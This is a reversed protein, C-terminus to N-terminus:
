VALSVTSSPLPPLALWVVVTVTVAGLLGGTISLKVAVMLVTAASLPRLALKVQFM